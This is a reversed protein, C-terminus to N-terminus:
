FSSELRSNVLLEAVVADNPLSLAYAASAAIAQPSIKFEGEPTTIDSVMDTDVMGPCIATARVGDDWGSLRIAHTLSLAAFKSATYGFNQERLLRKGALSVVNIVRGHGSARLSPMAARVLRWPGKFNVELMADMDAESGSELGASIVVGANLMVADIQAYHELTANTWATSTSADTADWHHTIVDGDIASTDIAAPDRAGLSLRYGAAALAKATAFGIGRNAGSIMIVRGNPSLM